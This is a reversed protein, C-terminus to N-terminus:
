RLLELTPQWFEIAQREVNEVKLLTTEPSEIQEGPLILLETTSFRQWDNRLDRLKTDRTFAAALDATSRIGADRYRRAGKEGAFKKEVFGAVREHNIHEHHERALYALDVLHKPLPKGCWGLLKESALEDRTLGNIPFSNDTALLADHYILPPGDRDLWEGARVSVSVKLERDRPRRSMRIGEMSFPSRGDFLENDYTWRGDEPYLYFGYDGDAALAEELDPVTLNAPDLYTYDADAISQRPSRYVNSLLTGGKLVFLDSYKPHTALHRVTASKAVLVLLQARTLGTREEAADLIDDTTVPGNAQEVRETV